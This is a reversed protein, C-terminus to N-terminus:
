ATAPIRGALASAAVDRHRAVLSALWPDTSRMAARARAQQIATFLVLLGFLLLGVYTTLLLLGIEVALM